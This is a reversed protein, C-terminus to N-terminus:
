TNSSKWLYDIYQHVCSGARSPWHAEDNSCDDSTCVVLCGFVLFLVQLLPRPHWLSLVLVKYVFEPWFFNAGSLSCVLVTWAKVCRNTSLMVMFGNTILKKEMDVLGSSEVPFNLWIHLIQCLLTSFKGFLVSKPAMHIDPLITSTLSSTEKSYITINIMGASPPRFMEHEQLRPCPVTLAVM